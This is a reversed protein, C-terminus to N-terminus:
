RVAAAAEVALLREVEAVLLAGVDVPRGDAERDRYQLVTVLDRIAEDERVLRRLERAFADAIEDRYRQLESSGGGSASRLVEYFTQLPTAGEAVVYWIGGARDAAAAAPATADRGAQVRYVSNHYERGACGARNLRLPRLRRAVPDQEVTELVDPISLSKPLLLFLRKVPIRVRQEDEYDRCRDRLSAATECDGHAPLILRLYGHYYSHAM